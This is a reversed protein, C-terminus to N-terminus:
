ALAFRAGHPAARPMSPSSSAGTLTRSPSSTCDQVGHGRLVAVDHAAGCLCRSGDRARVHAWLRLASHHSRGHHLRTRHLRHAKLRPKVLGSIGPPHLHHGGVVTGLFAICITELLLYPVGQTTLNLLLSLDPHVIGSLINLAIQTGSQGTGAAEVASGSWVLLAVVVVAVALEFAWPRPREDYARQISDNM